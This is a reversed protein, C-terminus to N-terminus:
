VDSLIMAFVYFFSRFNINKYCFVCNKKIRHTKIMTKSKYFNSKTSCKSLATLPHSTATAEYPMYVVKNNEGETISSLTELYKM